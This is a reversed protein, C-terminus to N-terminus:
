ELIRLDGNETVRTDDNELLRFIVSTAVESPTGNVKLRRSTFKTRYNKNRVVSREVHLVTKM